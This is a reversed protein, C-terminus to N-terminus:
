PRGLTLEIANTLPIGLPEISAGQVQLVRGTLTADNPIPLPFAAGPAASFALSPGLDVLLQGGPLPLELSLASILLADFVASPAFDAHDISPQWTQGILGGDGTPRLVFPNAPSGVRPRENRELALALDDVALTSGPGAEFEVRLQSTTAPTTLVLTFSTWDGTSPLALAEVDLVGGGGDFAGLRVEAAGSGSTRQVGRLRYTRLEEAPAPQSAVGGSIELSGGAISGETGFAAAGAWGAVGADFTANSLLNSPSPGLLGTLVLREHSRLEPSGGLQPVGATLHFEDALLAGGAGHRAQVLDPLRTWELTLVDLAEVEAHAQTPSEGGAVILHTGAAVAVAGARETPIPDPLTSWAGTSFDYVDVLPLTNAQPQPLETQRGAAAYLKNGLVFAQFHDRAHPADPLVTWTDGVPDYVDFWPVFGGDHGQTNGGLLYFRDEHLVCAASGRRRAAPITPGVSWSDAAPDYLRVEPLPTENPFPGTFAGLIWVLGNRAVPQFHHIELPAFAGNSWQNSLPDYRDVTRFGRGGLLLLDGEFELAGCEHRSLPVSGDVTTVIEWCGCGQPAPGTTTPLALLLAALTM